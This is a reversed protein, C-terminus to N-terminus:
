LCKTSICQVSLENSSRFPSASAYVRMRVNLEAKPHRYWQLDWEPLRSALVNQGTWRGDSGEELKWKEAEEQDWKKWVNRGESKGGDKRTIIAQSM